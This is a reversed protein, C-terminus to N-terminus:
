GAPNLMRGIFLISGTEIDRILFIFPRDITVEIPEAPMSTVGVVVATAAAAETGEEDVAVFAKHLVDQIFLDRTGDMGSFDAEGPQFADAMGLSQLAGALGLTAEFEFKPLSLSMNQSSLQAVVEDLREADLAAEFQEFGGEDPLLVVMAMQRGVYPLEVAQYGDGDVYPFIEVQKMMPVQVSSGDLLHFDGDQTVEPEFPLAWAANFYIANVLVLRTLADIVGAPILDQIRDSTQEEVWGNIVQRAAEADAAFDLLRLGAGYNQALLDLFEPQFNYDNQGWLSNVINLTFGRSEDEAEEAGAKEAQSELTQDLLNMAPHLRDQPLDFHLAKAMQQETEGAAGAYTMALALSISFPSYFLNGGEGRVAQYLDLAFRNNGAALTELDQGAGAPAALRPKGSSVLQFGDGSVPPQTPAPQTAPPEEPKPTAPQPTAGACASVFLLALIMLTNFIKRKM